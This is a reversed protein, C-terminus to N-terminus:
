ENKDIPFPLTIKERLPYVPLLYGSTQIRYKFYYVSEIKFIDTMGAHM